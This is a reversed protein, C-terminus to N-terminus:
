SMSIFSNFIFHFSISHSPILSPRLIVNPFDGIFSGIDRSLETIYWETPLSIELQHGSVYSAVARTLQAESISKKTIDLKNFSHYGSWFLLFYAEM